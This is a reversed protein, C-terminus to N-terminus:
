KAASNKLLIGALFAAASGLLWEVRYLQIAQWDLITSVSFVFGVLMASIACGVGIVFAILSTMPLAMQDRVSQLQSNIFHFQVYRAWSDTAAASAPSPRVDGCVHCFGAGMVFESGCKSCAEVPAAGAHDSVPAVAPARWFDHQTNQAVEAM